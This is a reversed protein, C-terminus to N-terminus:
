ERAGKGEGGDTTTILDAPAPAPWVSCDAPRLRNWALILECRHDRWWKAINHDYRALGRSGPLRRGTDLAFSVNEGGHRVHFHPPISEPTSKCQSGRFDPSNKKTSCACAM